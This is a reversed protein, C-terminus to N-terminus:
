PLLYQIKYFKNSYNTTEKERESDRKTWDNKTNPTCHNIAFPSLFGMQRDILRLCCLFIQIDGKICDRKRYIISVDESGRSFLCMQISM